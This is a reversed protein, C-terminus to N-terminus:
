LHPELWAPTVELSRVGALLQRRYLDSSARSYLQHGTLFSNHTCNIWYHALPHRLDDAKFVIKAPDVASNHPTLLMQVFYSFFMHHDEELGNLTMRSVKRVSLEDEPQTPAAIEPQSHARHKVRISQPSPVKAVAPTPSRRKPTSMCNPMSLRRAASGNTQSLRSRGNEGSSTQSMRILTTPALQFSLRRVLRKLEGSTQRCRAKFKLAASLSSTPDLGAEESVRRAKGKARVAREFRQVGEDREAPTLNAGSQDQLFRMWEALPIKGDTAYDNFLKKFHPMDFALEEFVPGLLSISLTEGSRLHRLYKEMPQKRPLTNAASLLRRLQKPHNLSLGLDVRKHRDFRNVSAQVVNQVWRAHSDQDYLKNRKTTSSLKRLPRMYSRQRRLFGVLLEIRSVRHVRAVRDIQYYLWMLLAVMTIFAIFAIASVIVSRNTKPSCIGDHPTFDGDSCREPLLVVTSYGRQPGDYVLTIDGTVIPHDHSDNTVLVRKFWISTLHQSANEFGGTDFLDDTGTSATDRVPAHADVSFADHFEAVGDVVRGMWIDADAM